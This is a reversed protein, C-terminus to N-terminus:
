PALRPDFIQNLVQAGHDLGPLLQAIFLIALLLATSITCSVTALTVPAIGDNDVMIIEELVARGAAMASSLLIFLIGLVQSFGPFLMDLVSDPASDPHSWLPICSCVVGSIVIVISIIM